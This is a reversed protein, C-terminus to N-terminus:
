HSGDNEPKPDEPNPVAAGALENAEAGAAFALEPEPAVESLRKGMSPTIAGPTAAHTFIQCVFVFVAFAVGGWTPLEAQNVALADAFYLLSAAVAALTDKRKVYWPQEALANKVAIQIDNM